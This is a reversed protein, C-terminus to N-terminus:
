AGLYTLWCSFVGFTGATNVQPNWVFFSVRSRALVSFEDSSIIHPVNRSLPFSLTKDVNSLNSDAADWVSTRVAVTHKTTTDDGLVVNLDVRYSGGKPVSFHFTMSPSAGSFEYRHNLTALYYAIEVGANFCVGSPSIETSASETVAETAIQVTKEKIRQLYLDLERFYRVLDESKEVDPLLPTKERTLERGIM